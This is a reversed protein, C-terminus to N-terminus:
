HSLVVGFHFKRFTHQKPRVNQFILKTFFGCVFCRGFGSLYKLCYQYIFLNVCFSRGFYQNKPMFNEQFKHFLELAGQSRGIRQLVVKSYEEYPYYTFHLPHFEQFLDGVCLTSLVEYDGAYPEVGVKFIGEDKLLEQIFIQYILCFYTFIAIIAVVELEIPM